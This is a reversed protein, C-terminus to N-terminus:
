RWDDWRVRIVVRDAVSSEQAIRTFHIDFECEAATIFDHGMHITPLNSNGAKNHNIVLQQRPTTCRQMNPEHAHQPRPFDPRNPRMTALWQWLGGTWNEPGKLHQATPSGTHSMAVIISLLM